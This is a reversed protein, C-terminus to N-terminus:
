DVLAVPLWVEVMGQTTGTVAQACCKGFYGMIRDPYVRVTRTESMPLFSFSNLAGRGRLSSTPNRVPWLSACLLHRRAKLPTPAYRRLFSLVSALGFTWLFPNM